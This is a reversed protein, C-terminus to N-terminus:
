YAVYDRGRACESAFAPDFVRGIDSRTLGIDSLERDTMLSLEQAVTRRYNWETLATALRNLWGRVGRKRDPKVAAVDGADYDPGIYTLNGLSFTLQDKTIPASM